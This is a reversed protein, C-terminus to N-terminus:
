RYTFSVADFQTYNSGMRRLRSFLNELGDQNLRTTLIFSIGYQDRMSQYLLSLAKSCTLIGRQWPQLGSSFCKHYNDYVRLKEIEYSCTELIEQQYDLHIEYGCRQDKRIISWFIM